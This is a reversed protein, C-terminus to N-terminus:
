ILVWLSAIRFSPKRQKEDAGGPMDRSLVKVLGRGSGKM